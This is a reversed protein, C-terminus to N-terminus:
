VEEAARAAREAVDAALARMAGEVTEADAETPPRTRPPWTEPPACWAQVLRVSRGIAEAAARYAVMPPVVRAVTAIARTIRETPTM